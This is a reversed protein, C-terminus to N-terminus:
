EEKGMLSAKEEYKKNKKFDESISRFDQLYRDIVKLQLMAYEFREKYKDFTTPVTIVQGPQVFFNHGKYQLHSKQQSESLGPINKKRDYCATELAHIAM